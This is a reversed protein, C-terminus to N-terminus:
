EFWTVKVEVRAFNGYSKHAQVSVVQADDEYVIKNMGDCVSKVLNDIDPKKTPLELGLAIREKRAKPYSKPISFFAKITVGVPGTVPAVGGMAETACAQVWTEYKRTKEPTYAHGSKTFRPRGKGQPEGLISFEISNTKQETM